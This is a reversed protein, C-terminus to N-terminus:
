SASPGPGFVLRQLGKFLLGSHSQWGGPAGAIPAKGFPCQAALRAGRGAAFWARQASKAVLKM